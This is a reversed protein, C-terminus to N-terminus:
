LNQRWGDQKPPAYFALFTKPDLESIEVRFMILFYKTGLADAIALLLPLLVVVFASLGLGLPSHFHESNHISFSNRPHVTASTHTMAQEGEV